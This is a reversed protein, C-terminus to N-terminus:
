FFTGHAQSMSATFRIGRFDAKKMSHAFLFKFVHSYSQQTALFLRFLMKKNCYAM